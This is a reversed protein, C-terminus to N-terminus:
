SKELEDRTIKLIIKDGIKDIMDIGISLKKIIGIKLMM